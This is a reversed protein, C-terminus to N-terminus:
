PTLDALFRILPNLAQHDLQWVGKEAAVGLSPPPDSQAALFTAVRSKALNIPQSGTQEKVCELFENICVFTRDEAVTELCLDEIMGPRNNDPMIYVGVHPRYKTNFGGSRTPYPLGNAILANRVSDFAAAADKDADRIIAMRLVNSFGSAKKLAALIAKIKTKGAVDEIQVGTATIRRFLAKFFNSEDKGEVLLLGQETIPRPIM